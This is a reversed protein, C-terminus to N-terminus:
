VIIGGGLVMDGDYFVIAQGPTVSLQKETFTVRWNGNDLPQILCAAAEHQLRIKASVHLEGVPQPISIWNLGEAVLTDKYLFQKPGVVIRNKEAEIRIVYYPESQGAIGLNKRQGITYHILGRHKGLKGGDLDVIDGEAFANKEFLVSYDDSEFFDQSEHKTVLESFGRKAAIIRIEEKRYDGM